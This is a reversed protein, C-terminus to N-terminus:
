HKLEIKENNATLFYGGGFIRLYFTEVFKEICPIRATITGDIRLGAYPSMLFQNNTHEYSFDSFVNSPKEYVRTVEVNAFSASDLVGLIQGKIAETNREDSPLSVKRTDYWVILSFPSKIITKNRGLEQPDRLTFFSFNGLEKCPMIQEYQGDGIYLNASTFKRGDKIDTLTECIGLSYDLWPFADALAEQIKLVEKDFLKPDSKHQVRDM